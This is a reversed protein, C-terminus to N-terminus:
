PKPNQTVSMRGLTVLDLTSHKAAEHSFNHFLMVVLYAFSGHILESQPNLPHHTPQIFETPKSAQSESNASM